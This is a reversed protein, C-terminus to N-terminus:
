SPTGTPPLPFYSANVAWCTDRWAPTRSSQGPLGVMVTHCVTLGEQQDASHRTQRSCLPRSGQRSDLGRHDWPSVSGEKRRTWAGLPTGLKSPCAPHKPDQVKSMEFRERNMGFLGLAVERPAQETNCPMRGRLGEQAVEMESVLETHYPHPSHGGARLTSQAQSHDWM